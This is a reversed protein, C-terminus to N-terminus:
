HKHATEYWDVLKAIGAAFPTAPNYGLLERAKSIDACTRPVDGPQDPKLNIRAKRGVCEEVTRIFDRLRTPRGNGLNYLQYGLPTDLARIVGDVVDDIYTYDRSSSGDGYQDIAVGRSIKDVFKLPAMDPRGRPGFVTFFRLGAVNLGYLHHYTYGLLECAKKTAAYPSVPADVADTESFLQKKSGGYVSSSSAFVFHDNGKRAALELLRTTAEINSHVYVFPDDISPRVGARAALHVVRRPMPCTPFVSAELFALDCVDGRFVRVNAGGAKRLLRLNAEKAAVDYYDNVEDIGVVYDGRALLFEATHSGIFGAAGTVVIASGDAPFASM